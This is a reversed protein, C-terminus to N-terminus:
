PRAAVVRFVRCFVTSALLVVSLTMGGGAGVVVLDFYASYIYIYIYISISIFISLYICM